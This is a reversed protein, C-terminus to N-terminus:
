LPPAEDAGGRRLRDIMWRGALGPPSDIRWAAAMRVVMETAEFAQLDLSVLAGSQLDEQVLHRPMGGWGLGAKLFAHKAGMDALRWTKDGFVGFERGQTLSSRDTLVLQVYRSATERDIRRRLKALPHDAAAVVVMPVGCMPETALQGPALPITNMVCFACRGDLVPQLVAGLV